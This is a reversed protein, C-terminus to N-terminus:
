QAARAAPRARQGAHTTVEGVVDVIGATRANMASADSSSQPSSTPERGVLGVTSVKSPRRSRPRARRVRVVRRSRRRADARHAVDGRDLDPAAGGVVPRRPRAAVAAATAAASGAGASGAVSGAGAAAAGGRCRGGAGHADVGLPEVREHVVHALQDHLAREDLREDGLGVTGPSLSAIPSRVRTEWASCAITM